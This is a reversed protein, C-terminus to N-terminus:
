KKPAEQRVPYGRQLQLDIAQDIPIRTIGAKRDVWGYTSLIRDEQARLQRYEMSPAVEIRPVPPFAPAEDAMPNPPALVPRASFFDFVGVCLALVVAVILAVAGGMLVLPRLPADTLEHSAAASPNHEDTLM